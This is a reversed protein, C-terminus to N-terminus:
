MKMVAPLVSPPKWLISPGKLFVVVLFFVQTKSVVSQIRTFLFEEKENGIGMGRGWQDMKNMLVMPAVVYKRNGIKLFPVVNNM